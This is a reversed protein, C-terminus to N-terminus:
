RTFLARKMDGQQRTRRPEKAWSRPTRVGSLPRTTACARAPCGPACPSRDMTSDGSACPLGAEPQESGMQARAVGKLLLRLYGGGRM